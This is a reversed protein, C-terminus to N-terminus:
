VFINWLLLSFQRAGETGSCLSEAGTTGSLICLTIGAVSFGAAKLLYVTVTSEVGGAM